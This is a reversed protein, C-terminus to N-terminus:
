RKMESDIRYILSDLSVSINIYKINPPKGIWTKFRNCILHMTYLVKSPEGEAKEIFRLTPALTELKKVMEGTTAARDRIEKISNETAKVMLKINKFVEDRNEKVNKLVNNLQNSYQKFIEAEKDSFQKLKSIHSSSITDMNKVATKRIKKAESITDKSTNKIEKIAQAKAENLTKLVISQYANLEGKAKSINTNLTELEKGKEQIQNNLGTLSKAKQLGTVLRRLSLKPEGKVSLLDLGAKLSKLNETNYGGTFFHTTVAVAERFTQTKLEWEDLLNMQTRIDTKLTDRTKKLGAVEEELRTKRANLASLDKKVQVHDAATKIRELLEDKSELEMGHIRTVLESTVGVEALDSLKENIGDLEGRRDKTAKDLNKLEHQLRGKDKEAKDIWEKLQSSHTSLSRVKGQLSTVKSNLSSLQSQRREIDRDAEPIFKKMVKYFQSSSPYKDHIEKLPTGKRFEELIDDEKTM